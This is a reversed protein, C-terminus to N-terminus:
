GLVPNGGQVKIFWWKGIPWVQRKGIWLCDKTRWSLYGEERERM